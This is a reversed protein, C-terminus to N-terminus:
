RGFRARSLAGQITLSGAEKYHCPECYTTEDFVIGRFWRSVKNKKCAECSSRALTSSLPNHDDTRVPFFRGEPQLSDAPPDLIPYGDFNTIADDREKARAGQACLADIRDVVDPPICSMVALDERDKPRLNPM